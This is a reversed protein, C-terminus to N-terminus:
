IRTKLIEALDYSDLEVMHNKLETQAVIREIDSLQVGYESLKPIKMDSTLRVLTDLFNDICESDPYLKGQDFLRAITAYKKLAVSEPESARLKSVSVRNVSSMLAGCVVGHPIPYLSGLPQAFGHVVGLGANALSIGSLLAAYSLDTRAALDNGSYYVRELSRAICEIGSLAITDTLPSAKVSLYSELLQTFADMGCAATLEPPCHLTLEPDILAVDPVYQDHRLSKKYGQDGQTTIVANKTAESGTGATTPIAILRLRKGSPKRNGVGELYETIGGEECIMAAIAKGADIVSGGGVAIILEIEKQRFHKVASDITKPSPEGSVPYHYWTYKRQQLVKKVRKKAGSTIFSTNGTVLLIKSGYEDILKELQDLSGPGFIIRPVNAFHFIPITSVM